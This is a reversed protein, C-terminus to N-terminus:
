VAKGLLPLPRCAQSQGGSGGTRLQGRTQQVGAWQWLRGINQSMFAVNLIEVPCSMVWKGNFAIEQTDAPGAGREWLDQEPM